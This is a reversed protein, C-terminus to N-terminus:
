QGPGPFVAAHELGCADEHEAHQHPAVAPQQAAVEMFPAVHEGGGKGAEERQVSQAVHQGVEDRVGVHQRGEIDEDGRQAVEGEGGDEDTGHHEAEVARAARGAEQAGQDGVALQAHGVVHCLADYAGGDEVM